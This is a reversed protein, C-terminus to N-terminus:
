IYWIPGNCRGFSFLKNCQIDVNNEMAKVAKHLAIDVPGDNIKPPQYEPILQYIPM